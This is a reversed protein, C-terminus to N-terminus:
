EPSAEYPREPLPDQDKRTRRKARKDEAKRKKEVERRNKEFTNRNKAM